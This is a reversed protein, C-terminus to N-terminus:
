GAAGSVLASLDGDNYTTGGTWTAPLATLTTQASTQSTGAGAADRFRLAGGRGLIAVWYRTGNTVAREPLAITNWASNTVTQSGQGMLAGPRGGADAYIGAVVTTAGGGPQVYVELKRATGTRWASMRFAEAMGAAVQDTQSEISKTGILGVNVFSGITWSRTAATADTNGVADTARV